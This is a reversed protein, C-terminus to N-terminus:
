ENCFCGKLLDIDDHGDRLHLLMGAETNYDYNCLRCIYMHEEDKTKFDRYCLELDLVVRVEKTKKLM